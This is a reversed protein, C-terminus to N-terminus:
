FQKLELLAVSEVANYIYCLIFIATRLVSLFRKELNKKIYVVLQNTYQERNVLIFRVDFPILFSPFLLHVIGFLSKVIFKTLSLARGFVTQILNM